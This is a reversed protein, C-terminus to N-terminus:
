HEAILSSYTRHTGNPNPHVPFMINTVCALTVNFNWKLMKEPDKPQRAGTSTGSVRSYESVVRQEIM